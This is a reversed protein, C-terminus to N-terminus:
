EIFSLFFLSLGKCFGLVFNRLINNLLSFKLLFVCVLIQQEFVLSLELHDTVLLQLGKLGFLLFLSLLIVIILRVFHECNCKM